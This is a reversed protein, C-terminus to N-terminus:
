LWADEGADECDGDDNGDHGRTGDSFLCITGDGGVTSAARPTARLEYTSGDAPASVTIDYVPEAPPVAGDCLAPNIAGADGGGDAAGAYSFNNSGFREMGQACALLAAQGQGRLTRERFVDYIPLAVGALIAMIVLTVLLEVLTFGRQRRPRVAGAPVPTPDPPTRM